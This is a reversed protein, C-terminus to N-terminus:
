QAPRHDDDTDGGHPPYPAAIEVSPAVPAVKPVVAGRLATPAVGLRERLQRWMVRKLDRPVAAQAVLAMVRALGELDALAVPAVKPVVGDPARMIEGAEWQLQTRIAMALWEGQSRDQRSAAAVAQAREAPPM